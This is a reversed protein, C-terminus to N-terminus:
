NTKGLGHVVPGQDVTDVIDSLNVVITNRHIHCSWFPFFVVNRHTLEPESEASKTSALIGGWTGVKLSSVSTRGRVRGAGGRTGLGPRVGLGRAGPGRAGPRGAGGSRAGRARRLGLGTHTLWYLNLRASHSTIPKLFTKLRSRLFIRRKPM